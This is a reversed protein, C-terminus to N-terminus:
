LDGRRRLAPLALLGPIVPLWYTVVRFVLVAAVMPGAAGGAATLGIALAPELAGVNGATPAAGAVTTGVLYVAAVSLVGVQGGFARESGTLALVQAAKTGALSATLATARAPSHALSRLHAAFQAVPGRLRTRIGRHACLGVLVAVVVATGTVIPVVGITHVTDRAPGLVSATLRSDGLLSAVLALAAIHVAGSAVKSSAIAALGASRPLGRRELFRVNLAIAGLGAPIIRNTAAAAYQVATAVRLGLPLGSSARLAAGNLVYFLLAGVVCLTLWGWNPAPVHDLQRAVEARFRIALATLPVGLLIALIVTRRRPLRPALWARLDVHHHGDAPATDVLVAPGPAVM